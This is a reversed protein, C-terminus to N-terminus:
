IPIYDHVVLELTEIAVAGQDSKLQPGTWKVPIAEMFDWRALENGMSDFMIIALTRTADNVQGSLLSNYWDLLETSATLGRKLTVRGSKRRSPLVHVYDNLGGEKREETEFELTPLTCESFAAMRQGDIEVVFRHGSHPNLAM